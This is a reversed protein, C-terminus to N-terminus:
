RQPPIKARVLLDKLSKDKRYAVIPADPFIRALNPSNTILFWNKMLIEKLKPVSPNYTTVFLLINKSTMPKYKLANNRSSFDVEAQIKNVLEEPYGHELLRFKFDRKNSEFKEKISNTRLLRLTEGKIFGKKVSLPHCSSFHTYQFTETAKFHTQVDLIKNSAFRPGKFVETDLFVARESSMECTFKITAHFRNAFDVFNSIEQKSSTWVSFIDDIFRKWIIPKHPSFLLLQKEVHGMFIVSFAVAMKTGMAIGHTQLFLKGNFHFSNEKLILKMLDGFTSTPIPPNPQYHDNYYQCVVKIGEEQPINTYLSCADLSAIIANDPIPTNEIFRVFDTTDKIYSEQKKAIPQLLSDIFSSIRETPSGNGSVIPRGALNPKHIKTLTYFEPIRPPNQSNNLWKFTTEDIHKNVYLKNVILKVKNATSVVIPEQLPTYYNTDCVQDNGETIKRQTDMVVTTNGKDARKINVKTNARLKTLAEREKASLNDQTDCFPITAIEYKTRELYDEFAVSPQPPPQWNSKVHFPHPKSNRDAFLFKLRM